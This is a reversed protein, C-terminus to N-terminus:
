IQENNINKFVKPIKSDLNYKKISDQQAAILLEKSALYAMSVNFKDYSHIKGMEPLTQYLKNGRGYKDVTTFVTLFYSYPKNLDSNSKESDLVVIDNIGNNELNRVHKNFKEQANKSEKSVHKIFNKTKIVKSSFSVNYNNNNQIKM